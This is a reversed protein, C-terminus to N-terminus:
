SKSGGQLVKLWCICSVDVRHVVVVVLHQKERCVCECVTWRGGTGLMQIGDHLTPCNTTPVSLFM